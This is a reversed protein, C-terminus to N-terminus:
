EKSGVKDLDVDDLSIAGELEEDTIEAVADPKQYREDDENLLFNPPMDPDQADELLSKDVVEDKELPKKATKQESEIHVEHITEPHMEDAEIYTSDGLEEATYAAIGNLVDPCYTRVGNTIARNFYMNRAYKRYNDSNLLGAVKADNEDFQSIGLLEYKGYKLEYFELACGKNTWNKVKYDYKKSAKIKSAHGNGNLAAKGKIINIDSMAQFPPIGMEQGALIKVFAKAVDKPGEPFMGSSAFMIALSKVQPLTVGTGNQIQLNDVGAKALENEM